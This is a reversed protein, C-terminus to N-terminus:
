TLRPTTTPPVSGVAVAFARQESASLTLVVPAAAAAVTGIAKFMSRRDVGMAPQVAPSRSEILNARSLQEIATRALDESGTVGFQDAFAAAIQRLTAGTACVEWAIAASANLSHVSKSRQDFIAISGDSLKEVALSDEGARVYVNGKWEM